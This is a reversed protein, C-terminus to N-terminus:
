SPQWLWRCASFLSYKWSGLEKFTVQALKICFTTFKLCRRTFVKGCQAYCPDWMYIWRLFPHFEPVQFHIHELISNTSLRSQWRQSSFLSHTWSNPRDLPNCTMELCSFTFIELARASGSAWMDNEVCGFLSNCTGVVTCQSEHSSSDTHVSLYTFIRRTAPIGTNTVM